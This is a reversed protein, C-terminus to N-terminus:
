MAASQEGAWLAICSLHLEYFCVLLSLFLMYVLGYMTLAIVLYDLSDSIAHVRPWVYDICYRFM